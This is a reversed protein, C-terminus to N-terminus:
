SIEVAKKVAELNKEPTEPSIVCGPGLILRLESNVKILEKVKGTIDDPTRKLLWDQNIGGLVVKNLIKAGQKLSLNTPDSSDWNVVKVLYDTFLPLFNNSKCIHLINFEASGAKKLVKLDYPRGFESYENETLHDKTAWETTAFFIGDASADLCEVVFDSFTETITELAQHILEPNERINKILDKEEKVLDGAISLPSFVTEVVFIEDKLKKKILRLAELQEEFAKNSSDLVKLRKWDETKRIPKEIVRTKALPSASFEVKAGWGEIHYSARPNLKMFDWDYKKQFDTMADALDQATAERHYFHRWFSVPLRDAREGKLVARIRDKHISM